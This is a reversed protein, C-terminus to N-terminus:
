KSSFWVVMTRNWATIKKELTDVDFISGVYGRCLTGPVNKKSMFCGLWSASRKVEM